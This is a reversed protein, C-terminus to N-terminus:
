QFYHPLHSAAMVYMMVTEAVFRRDSLLNCIDVRAADTAAGFIKRIATVSPLRRARESM